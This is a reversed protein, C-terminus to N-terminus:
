SREKCQTERSLHVYNSTTQKSINHPTHTQIPRLHSDPYSAFVTDKFTSSVVSFVDCSRLEFLCLWSIMRRIVKVLPNRQDFESLLSGMMVKQSSLENSYKKVVSRFLNLVQAQALVEKREACSSLFRLLDNVSVRNEEDQQIVCSVVSVSLDCIAMDEMEMVANMLSARVPPQLDAKLVRQFLQHHTSM